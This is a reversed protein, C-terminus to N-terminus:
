VENYLIMICIDGFTFLFGDFKNFLKYETKNPCKGRPYILVIDYVTVGGEWKSDGEALSPENATNVSHRM